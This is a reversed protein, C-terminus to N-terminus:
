LRQINEKAVNSVVLRLLAGNCIWVRCEEWVVLTSNLFLLFFIRHQPIDQASKRARNRITQPNNNNKKEQWGTGDAGIFLLGQFYKLKKEGEDRSNVMQARRQQERQGASALACLCM